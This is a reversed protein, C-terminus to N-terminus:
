PHWGKVLYGFLRPLAPSRQLSGVQLQLQKKERFIVPVAPNPSTFFPIIWIELLQPFIHVIYIYIHVFPNNSTYSGGDVKHIKNLWQHQKAPSPPWSTPCIRQSARASAFFVLQWVYDIKLGGYISLFFCVRDHLIQGGYGWIWHPSKKAANSEIIGLSM